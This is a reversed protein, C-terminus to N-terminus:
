RVMVKTTRVGGAHYSRLLWLGPTEPVRVAGNVVSEEHGAVRGLADLWEVRHVDSPIGSVWQGAQAPQPVLRLVPLMSEPTAVYRNMAFIVRVQLSDNADAVNVFTYWISDQGNASTDRVYAYGSFDNAIGNPAITVTGQSQNAWTPYCLDWCFYNSDVIGTAGVKRRIVRYDKTSSSTNKVSIHATAQTMNHSNAYAVSDMSTVVLSQARLAICGFTAVLFFVFKQMPYLYNTAFDAGLCRLANM